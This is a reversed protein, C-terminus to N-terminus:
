RKVYVSIENIRFTSVFVVMYNLHSLSGGKATTSKIMSHLFAPKYKGINYYSRYVLGLPYICTSIM